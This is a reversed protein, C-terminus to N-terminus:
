GMSSVRSRMRKAAMRSKASFPYKDVDTASM